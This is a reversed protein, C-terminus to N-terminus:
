PSPSPTRRSYQLCSCSVLPVQRYHDSHLAAVQRFCGAGVLPVQRYHDSHSAAVQRFCGAGVLPVQRYHDSHSAAVQRFCGAGVLPVQRYHDSHSAAVQRFCGAGVLPVQRYCSSHLAAVERYPWYSQGVLPQRLCTESYRHLLQLSTLPLTHYQIPVLASLQPVRTHYMDSIMHSDAMKQCQPIIHLVAAHLTSEPSSITVRRLEHALLPVVM